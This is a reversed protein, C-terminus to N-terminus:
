HHSSRDCKTSGDGLIQDRDDKSVENSSRDNNCSTVGVLKTGNALLASFIEAGVECLSLSGLRTKGISKHISDISVINCSEFGDVFSRCFCLCEGFDKLLRKSLVKGEM